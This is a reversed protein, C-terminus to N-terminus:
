GAIAATVKRGMTKEVILVANKGAAALAAAEAVGHCGIRAFLADSPNELRPTEAELAAAGFARIACGFREAVALVAPHDRRSSITAVADIGGRSLGAHAFMGEALAVADAPLAEASVGIGLVFRKIESPPM